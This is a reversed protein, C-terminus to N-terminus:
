EGLAATVAALYDHWQGDGLERANSVGFRSLLAVAAPKGKGAVLRLTAESVDAYTLHETALHETTLRETTDETRTEAPMVTSTAAAVSPSPDVVAAARSSPGPSISTLRLKTRTRNKQPMEQPAQSQVQALIQGLAQVSGTFTLTATTSTLAPDHSM